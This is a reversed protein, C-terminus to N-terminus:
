NEQDQWQSQEVLSLWLAAEGKTDPTRHYHQKNLFKENIIM